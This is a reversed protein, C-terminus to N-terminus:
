ALRRLDHRYPSQHLPHQFVNSPPSTWTSLTENDHNTKPPPPAPFHNKSQVRKSPAASSSAPRLPPTSTTSSRTITTSPGQHRHATNQRVIRCEQNILAPLQGASNPPTLNHSCFPSKTLGLPHLAAPSAPGPDDNGITLLNSRTPPLATASAATNSQPAVFSAVGSPSQSAIKILGHTWSITATSSTRALPRFSERLCTISMNVAYCPRHSTSSILLKCPVRFAQCGLAARVAHASGRAAAAGCSRWSPSHAPPSTKSTIHIVYCLCLM